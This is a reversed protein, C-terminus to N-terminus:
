RGRRTTAEEGTTPTQTLAEVNANETSNATGNAEATVQPEIIASVRFLFSGDSATRTELERNALKAHKGVRVKLSRETKLGSDKLSIEIADGVAMGKLYNLLEQDVNDTTSPSAFTETVKAEAPKTFKIAVFNSGERIWFFPM